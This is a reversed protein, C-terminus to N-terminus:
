RRRSRAAGRAGREYTQVCRDTREANCPPFEGAATRTAFVARQNPSPVVQAGAPVSVPQNAGSPAEAQDSVVPIGRADREVGGSPEAPTAPTAPTARTGAGGPTARTARTAPTARNPNARRQTMGRNTARNQAARAQGQASKAASTQQGHNSHGSQQAVAAGSVMLAAILIVKKM